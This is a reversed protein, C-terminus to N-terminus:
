MIPGIKRMSIEKLFHTIISYPKKGEEMLMTLMDIESAPYGYSM